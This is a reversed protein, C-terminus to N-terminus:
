QRVLKYVLYREENLIEDSSQIYGAKVFAKVSAINQPRIYASITNVEQREKFLRFSSTFILPAAFHKGRSDKDMSINIFANNQNIDFRVQGIFSDSKTFALFFLCSEEILKEAFWTFHENLKIPNQNISNIRVIRENSLNFILLADNENAKRLYFGNKGTSQDILNQVVRKAGEGDVKKRGLKSLKERVARKKYNNLTVFIKQELNINKYSIESAIFGEKIWGNLHFMQNDAVAVAITPVGTRALEYITQGAASIALDSDLMLKVMEGASPSHYIKTLEDKAEEIQAINEFGSGVIVIKKWEPYNKVLVSLVRPTLNRIDQGGFTLFVTQIELKVLKEPVEWFEKRIPIFKAGLLTTRVGESSYTLTEANIAGNIITGPPYELRVNDDIYVPLSTISAITEYFKKDVSYSDVIIIDSNIIMEFLLEPEKLWNFLEYSSNNLFSKCAEDGNIYLTPAFNRLQFAQYISLCRTIHGYGTNHYGETVISIKM